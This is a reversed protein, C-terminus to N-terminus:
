MLLFGFMIVEVFSSGLLCYWFCIVFIWLLVNISVLFPSLYGYYSGFFAVVTLLYWSRCVLSECVSFIFVISYIDCLRNWNGFVDNTSLFSPYSLLHAKLLLQSFSLVFSIFWILTRILCFFFKSKIEFFM